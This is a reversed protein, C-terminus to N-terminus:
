GRTRQKNNQLLDTLTLFAWVDDAHRVDGDVIDVYQYASLGQSARNQM